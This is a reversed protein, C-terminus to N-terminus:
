SDSAGPGVEITQPAGLDWCIRVREGPEAKTIGIRNPQNVVLSDGGELRIQYRIVEGLYVRQEVLGRQV